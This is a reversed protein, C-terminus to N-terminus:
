QRTEDPGSTVEDEVMEAISQQQPPMDAVATGRVALGTVEEVLITKGDQEREILIPKLLARAMRLLVDGLEELNEASVAVGDETWGRCTGAADFHVEHLILVSDEGNTHRIVRYHYTGIPIGGEPITIQM